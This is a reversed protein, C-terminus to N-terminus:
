KRGTAIWDDIEGAIVTTDFGFLLGALAVTGFAFLLGRHNKSNRMVVSEVGPEGGM